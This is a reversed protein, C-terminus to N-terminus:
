TSLGLFRFWYRVRSRWTVYRGPFWGPGQWRSPPLAQQHNADPDAHNQRNYEDQQALQEHAPNTRGPIIQVVPSWAGRLRVGKDPMFSAVDRAMEDREIQLTANLDNFQWSSICSMGSDEDPRMEVALIRIEDGDRQLKDIGPVVVMWIHQHKELPRLQDKTIRPARKLRGLRRSGLVPIMSATPAVLANPEQRRTAHIIM